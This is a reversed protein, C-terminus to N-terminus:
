SKKEKEGDGSREKEDGEKLGGKKGEREGSIGTDGEMKDVQENDRTEKEKQVRIGM